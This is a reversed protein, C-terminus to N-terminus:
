RNPCQKSADPLGPVDVEKCHNASTKLEISYPFLDWDGGGGRNINCRPCGDSDLVWQAASPPLNSYGGDGDQKLTLIMWCNEYGPVPGDVWCVAEQYTTNITREYYEGPLYEGCLTGQVDPCCTKSNSCWGIQAGGPCSSDKKGPTSCSESAQALFSSTGITALLTLLIRSQM